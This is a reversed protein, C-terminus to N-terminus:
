FTHFAKSWEPSFPNRYIGWANNFGSFRKNVNTSGPTGKCPHLICVSVQMLGPQMVDSPHVPNCAADLLLYQLVPFSPVGGGDRYIWAPFSLPPISATDISTTRHNQNEMMFWLWYIYAWEWWLSLTLTSSILHLLGLPDAVSPFAAGHGIKSWETLSNNYLAGVRNCINDSFCM